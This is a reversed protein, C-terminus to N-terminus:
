RFTLAVFLVLGPPCKKLLTMHVRQKGDEEGANKEGEDGGCNDSMDQQKPFEEAREGDGGRQRIWAKLRTVSEPGGNRDRLGQSIGGARM